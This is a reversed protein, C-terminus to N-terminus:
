FLVTAVVLDSYLGAAVDQTPPVRGYVPIVRTQNRNITVPGFILSGGTGDGWIQTRNLDLYLNYDLQEAVNAMKRPQFTPAGGRGLTVRVNTRRATCTVQVEGAADTNATNFVDYSGFAVGATVAITCQARAAGAALLSVAAAVVLVALRSTGPAPTM